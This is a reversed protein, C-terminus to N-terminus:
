RYARAVQRLQDIRARIARAFVDTEAPTAGSARLGDRIQRDTVRGLYRLLWQIDRVSIGEKFDGTHQGSYGWDLGGSDIRLFKPTQDAYGNADWKERKFFNGWKGMSGGWDTILYHEQLGGRPGRVVYVGTNSGRGEDRVDKNDWNSTLMVIIKLGNLQPTGVFPNSKWGWSLEDKRKDVLNQDLEFRADAFSGDAGVYEKARDLGRVGRITGRPIFYAPDVFYGAAWALRTAFTESNVESGWKVTWKRGSADRVKIKPTSGGKDEELFTYPPRPANRRGGPGGVFDLREVAGPDKWILARPKTAPRNRQASAPTPVIPLVLAVLFLTTLSRM